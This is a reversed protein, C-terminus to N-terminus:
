TASHSLCPLCGLRSINSAQIPAPRSSLRALAREPGRHARHLDDSVLDATDLAAILKNQVYNRMCCAPDARSAGEFPESFPDIPDNQGDFPGSDRNRPGPLGLRAPIPALVQAPLAALVDLVAFVGGLLGRLGSPLTERGERGLQVPQDEGILALPPTQGRNRGM